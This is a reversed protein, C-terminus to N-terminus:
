HKMNKNIGIATGILVIGLIISSWESDLVDLLFLVVIFASSALIGGLASLIKIALSSKEGKKNHYNALIKGEDYTFGSGESSRVTNLLKKINEIRDM